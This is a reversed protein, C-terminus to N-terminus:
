TILGPAVTVKVQLQNLDTAKSSQEPLGNTAISIV